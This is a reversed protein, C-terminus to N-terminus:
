EDLIGRIISYAQKVDQLLEIMASHADGLRQYSDPFEQNLENSQNLQLLVINLNKATESIARDIAGQSQEINLIMEQRPTRPM